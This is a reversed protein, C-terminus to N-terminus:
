EATIEYKGLGYATGKGVHLLEGLKIFPMFEILEGEFTIEGLFGGMKMKIGQRQSYRKWDYWRLDSDITSVMDKAKEILENWELEWKEGCHVEAIRSLRRLLNRIIIAFDIDIILKGEHKIRTPTLFQFTVQNYKFQATEQVLEASDMVYFEDLVHSEGDYILVERNNRISVVKELSYMGKHKGIGTRGLEEFAFIVYPIYDVARGVLILHFDLEDDTRYYQRKDLPPEIIFPHPVYKDRSRKVEDDEKPVPTEFMYSYICRYRHECQTCDKSNVVCVSHKLISGFGGRLTSGKYPPLILEDKTKIIFRYKSLQM